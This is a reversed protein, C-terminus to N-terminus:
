SFLDNLLKGQFIGKADYKEMTSKQWAWNDDTKRDKTFGDRIHQMFASNNWPGAAGTYAWGKSWEPFVKANPEKFRDLFWEEMEEYFDNEYPTGPLTLVDFWVAVDWGNKITADDTALGSITPRATGPMGDSSDLGTVRIELPSNIPYKDQQRYSELMADFKATFDAIAQQVDARKMHVAYGNATVRLTTDKVYLLTNRSAGWIDRSVPYSGSVGIFNKGDLGFTSLTQMAAGLAVAAGPIKTIMKVITTVGEPLNDSFPYNNPGTVLRSSDPKNPAVTWVKLWPNTSFPFWIIEIRGSQELFYGCSNPPTVGGQPEKFLVSKDLNTISLCRMNYNDIVQLTAEVVLARGLQTMFADLDKDGREFTKLQYNNPDKSSPDTVVATLSLIRNSMSGYTTPFHDGAETPIATGHGNIALVGGVTLHDPAPIHPFSYGPASGKGGAQQELFAMLKGMTAGVGVRVAPGNNGSAPIFTMQHLAKTTDVLLVKDYASLGPTVSLPSWNHMIGRPRVTYGNKAAWNCAAAVDDGNRPACTWIAPVDITEAWNIFPVSNIPIQAPFGAPRNDKGDVIGVFKVSYNLTTGTVEYVAIKDNMAFTVQDPSPQTKGLVASVIPWVASGEAFTSSALDITGSQLVPFDSTSPTLNSGDTVCFSMVFWAKNKCQIKQVENM